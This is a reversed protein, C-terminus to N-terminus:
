YGVFNSAAAGRGAAGMVGTPGSSNLFGGADVRALLACGLHAPAHRSAALAVLTPADPLYLAAAGPSYLPSRLTLECREATM